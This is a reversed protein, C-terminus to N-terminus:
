SRNGRPQISLAQRHTNLDDARVAAVHEGEGDRLADVFLDTAKPSRREFLFVPPDQKPRRKNFRHMLGSIWLASMGISRSFTRKRPYLLCRSFGCLHGSILWLLCLDFLGGIM